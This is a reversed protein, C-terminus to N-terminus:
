MLEAMSGALTIRRVTATGFVEIQWWRGRVPPLRFASVTLNGPSLEMVQQNDVFLRVGIQTIDSSLIRCCGYATGSVNM